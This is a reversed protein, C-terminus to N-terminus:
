RKLYNVGMAHEIILQVGSRGNWDHRALRYAIYAHAPLPDTRNFWIASFEQHTHRLKLKLHRDKVLFQTLIEFEGSFIPSPFGQGWVMAELHTVFEPTFHVEELEGDTDITSELPKDGLWEQAITEFALSFRQVHETRIMLGAAMAHGGFALFLDPDRKSILDLADRLHFGPISRGSGKVRQGEEDAPALTVTPRFFRTKLRSAVIGIVGQHWTSDFLTITRRNSMDDKCVAELAALAETQMSAEIERRERNMEDLQQALALAHDPDDTILCEIGLSM